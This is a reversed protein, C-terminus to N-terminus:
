GTKKETQELTARIDKSSSKIESRMTKGLAAGLIDSELIHLIDSEMDIENDSM